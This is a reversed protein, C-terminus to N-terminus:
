GDGIMSVGFCCEVDRSRAKEKMIARRPADSRAGACFRSGTPISPVDVKTDAGLRMIAGTGHQREIQTIAVEAAQLKEDTEKSM